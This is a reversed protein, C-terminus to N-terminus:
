PQRHDFFLQLAEVLIEPQTLDGDLAIRNDQYLV